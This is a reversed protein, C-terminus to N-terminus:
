GGPYGTPSAASTPESGPNTYYILMSAIKGGDLDFFNCNQLEQVGAPEYASGSLPSLRVTFRSACREDGTDVYHVFDTFRPEFNALLHGLFASLADTGEGDARFVRPPADGHRITVTADPAFCSLASEIDGRAVSGFYAHEVLDIYDERSQPVAAIIVPGDRKPGALGSEARRRIIWLDNRPARSAFSTPSM